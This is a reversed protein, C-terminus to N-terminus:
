VSLGRVLSWSDNTTQLTICEPRGIGMALPQDLAFSCIMFFLNQGVRHHKTSKDLYIQGWFFLAASALLYFLNQRPAKFWNIDEDEDKM